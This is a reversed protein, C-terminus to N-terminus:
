IPFFHQEIQEEHIPEIATLDKSTDSWASKAAVQPATGAIALAVAKILLRPPYRLRAHHKEAIFQDLERVFALRDNTVAKKSIVNEVSDLLRM